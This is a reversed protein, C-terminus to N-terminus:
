LEKPLRGGESLPRVGRIRTVDGDTSSSGESAANILSTISELLVDYANGGDVSSGSTAFDCKWSM